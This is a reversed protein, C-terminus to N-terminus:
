GNLATARSRLRAVISKIRPVCKTGIRFLAALVPGTWHDVGIVIRLNRVRAPKWPELWAANSVMNVRLIQPDDMCRKLIWELLLQGPSALSHRQDYGIKPISYDTGGRFCLASAICEQGRYIANFECGSGTSTSDVLCQYYALQESRFCIASQTGESGKWGSAEVRLFAEFESQVRHPDSVHIFRIDDMAALRRHASRLNARFKRSLRSEFEAYSTDCHFM